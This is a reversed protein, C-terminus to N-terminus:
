YNVKWAGDINRIGFSSTESSSGDRYTIRIHYENGEGVMVASTALLKEFEAATRFELKMMEKVAKKEMSNLQASDDNVSFKAAGAFDLKRMAAAYALLAKGQPSAAIAAGTIPKPERLTNFTTEFNGSIVAEGDASQLTGRVKDGAIELKKFPGRVGDDGSHHGGLAMMEAGSHLNLSYSEHAGEVFSIKVATANSSTAWAGLSLGEAGTADVLVVNSPAKEAFLLYMRTAGDNMVLRTATVSPLKKSGAETTIKVSSTGAALTTAVISVLCVFGPFVKRM